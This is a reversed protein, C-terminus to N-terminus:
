AARARRRRLRTLVAVAGLLLGLSPGPTDGREGGDVDVPAPPLDDGRGTINFTVLGDEGEIPDAHTFVLTNSARRERAWAPQISEPELRWTGGPQLQVTYANNHTRDRRDDTAKAYGVVHTDARLDTSPYYLLVTHDLWVLGTSTSPGEAGRIDWRTVVNTCPPHRVRGDIRITHGATFECPGSGGSQGEQRNLRRMFWREYADVETAEVQGDADGLGPCNVYAAGSPADLCARFASANSGYLYVVDDTDVTVHTPLLVIDVRYEAGGQAASAAGAPAVLFLLAALVARM